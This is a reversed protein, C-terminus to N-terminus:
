EVQSPDTDVVVDPGDTGSTGVAALHEALRARKEDATGTTPLGRDKLEADLKQGKLDEVPVVDVETYGKGRLWDATAGFATHVTDNHPHKFQGM